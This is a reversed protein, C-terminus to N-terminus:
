KTFVEWLIVLNVIYEMKDWRDNFVLSSCYENDILKIVEASSMGDNYLKKYGTFIEKNTM